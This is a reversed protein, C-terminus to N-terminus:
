FNEYIIVVSRNIIPIGEDAARRFTALFLFFWSAVNEFLQVFSDLTGEALRNAPARLAHYTSNAIHLIETFAKDALRSSITAEKLGEAISKVKEKATDSKLNNQIEDLFGEPLLIDLGMMYVQIASKCIDTFEERSILVASNGSFKFMFWYLIRELQCQSEGITLSIALLFSTLIFSNM